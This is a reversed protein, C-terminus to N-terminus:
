RLEINDILRVEGFWVAVAIVVPETVTPVTQLTSADVLAVYETRALPEADYLSSVISTLTNPDREGAEFAVRAVQLGKYIISAAHRHEDTLRVNRSSMALGDSERVTPVGIITIGMDLDVVMKHIVALQQYDKQGFYARDPQVSLFLKTVVTTVGAFHGPRGAGEMPEATLGPQVTTEHGPPYMAETTPLYVADVGIAECLALDKEDTRPYKDFDSQVNFQLPNVFISAVVVDCESRAQRMLSLHGEHLAGMTPIFGVTINPSVRQTKVWERIESPTKAVIM